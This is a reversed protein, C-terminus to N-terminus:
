IKQYAGSRARMSEAMLRTHNQLELLTRTNLDVTARMQITRTRVDELDWLITKQYQLNKWLMVNLIILSILGGLVLCPYVIQYIM